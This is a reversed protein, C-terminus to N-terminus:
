KALRPWARPAVRVAIGSESQHRSQVAAGPDRRLNRGKVSDGRTLVLEEGDLVLWLPMM